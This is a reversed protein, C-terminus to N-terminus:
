AVCQLPWGAAEWIPTCGQPLARLRGLDTWPNEPGHYDSGSSAFLRHERAVAAMHRTEDLSHSGSVV